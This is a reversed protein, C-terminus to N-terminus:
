SQPSTNKTHNSVSKTCKVMYENALVDKIRAKAGRLKSVIRFKNIFEFANLESVRCIVDVFETNTNGKMGSEKNSGM